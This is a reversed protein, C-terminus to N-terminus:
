YPVHMCSPIYLAYTDMMNPTWLLHKLKVDGFVDCVNLALSIM